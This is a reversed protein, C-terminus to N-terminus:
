WIAPEAIAKNGKERLTFPRPRFLVTRPAHPWGAAGFAV